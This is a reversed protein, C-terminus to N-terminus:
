SADPTAAACYGTNGGQPVVGIRLTNCLALLRSVEATDRPLALALPKGRHRLHHDVAVSDLMAPDTEIVERGFSALLQALPTSAGGPMM